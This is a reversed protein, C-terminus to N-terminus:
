KQKKNKQKANHSIEHYVFDCMRHHHGDLVQRGLQSTEALLLGNGCHGNRQNVELVFDALSQLRNLGLVWSCMVGGVVVVVVRGGLSGIAVVFAKARLGSSLIGLSHIGLGEDQGFIDKTRYRKYCSCQSPISHANKMNNVKKQWKRKQSCKEKSV